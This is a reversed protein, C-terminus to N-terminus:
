AAILYEESYTSAVNTVPSKKFNNKNWINSNQSMDQIKSDNAVAAIYETSIDHASCWANAVADEQQLLIVYPLLEGNDICIDYINEDVYALFDGIKAKPIGKVLITFDELLMSSEACEDTLVNIYNFNPYAKKMTEIYANLKDAEKKM